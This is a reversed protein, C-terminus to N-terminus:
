GSACINLLLHRVTQEKGDKAGETKLLVKGDKKEAGLVKTNLMFKLGQKTLSRQFQKAIEEDIGVDPVAYEGDADLRASRVFRM